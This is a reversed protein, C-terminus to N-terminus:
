ATNLGNKYNDLSPLRNTILQVSKCNFIYNYSVGSPTYIRNSIQRVQIKANSLLRSRRHKVADWFASSINKTKISRSKCLYMYKFAICGAPSFIFNDL